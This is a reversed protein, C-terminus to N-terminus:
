RSFLFNGCFINKELIMKAIETVGQIAANSKHMPDVVPGPYSGTTSLIITNRQIMEVFATRIFAAQEPRLDAESLIRGIEDGLVQQSDQAMNVKLAGEQKWVRM